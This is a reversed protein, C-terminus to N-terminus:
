YLSVTLRPVLLNGQCECLLSHVSDRGQNHAVVVISLTFAVQTLALRGELSYHFAIRDLQEEGGRRRPVDAVVCTLHLGQHLAM